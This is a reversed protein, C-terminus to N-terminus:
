NFNVTYESITAGTTDGQISTIGSLMITETKCSVVQIEPKTYMKM